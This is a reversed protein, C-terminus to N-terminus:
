FHHATNYLEGNMNDEGPAKHNSLSNFSKRVEATKIKKESYNRQEKSHHYLMKITTLFNDKFYKYVIDLIDGPRSALKGESDEM